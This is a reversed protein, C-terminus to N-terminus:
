RRLPKYLVYSVYKSEFRHSHGGPRAAVAVGV